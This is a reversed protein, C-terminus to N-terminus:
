QVSYVDKKTCSVYRKNCMKVNVLGSIDAWSIRNAHSIGTWLSLLANTGFM